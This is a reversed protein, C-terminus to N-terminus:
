YCYCPLFSAKAAEVCSAHLGDFARVFHLTSNLGVGKITPLECPLGATCIFRPLLLQQRGRYAPVAQLPETDDITDSQGAGTVRNPEVDESAAAGNKAIAKATGAPEVDAAAASAEKAAAHTFEAAVPSGARADLPAVSVAVPAEFGTIKLTGIPVSFDIVSSCPRGKSRLDTSSCGCLAYLGVPLDPPVLGLSATCSSQSTIGPTYTCRVAKGLSLTEGNEEAAQNSHQEQHAAPMLECAQSDGCTTHQQPPLARLQGCDWPAGRIVQLLFLGMNGKGGEGYFHGNISGLNCVTEVGCEFVTRRPGAFGWCRGDICRRGRGWCQADSLCANLSLLRKSTGVYYGSSQLSGRPDPGQLAFVPSSTSVSPPSSAYSQTPALPSSSASSVPINLCLICVASSLLVCLLVCRDRQSGM